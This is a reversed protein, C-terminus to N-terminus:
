SENFTAHLEMDWGQPVKPSLNVCKDPRATGHSCGQPTYYAAGWDYFIPEADPWYKITTNYVLENKRTCCNTCDNKRPCDTALPYGPPSGAPPGWAFQESDILVAGFRIKTGAAANAADLEQSAWQLMRGYGAMEDAEGDTSCEDHGGNWCPKGGTCYWPSYQLTLTPVRGQPHAKGAADCIEVLTRSRNASDSNNSVSFPITGMIRAMDTLLAREASSKNDNAVDLYHPDFAFSYHVKPLPPLGALPNSTAWTVCKSPAGCPGPGDPGNNANPNGNPRPPTQQKQRLEASDGDEYGMPNTPSYRRKEPMGRPAATIATSCSLLLLRAFM